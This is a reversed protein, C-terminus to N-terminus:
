AAAALTERPVLTTIPTVVDAAYDDDRDAEDYVGCKHAERVVRDATWADSCVIERYLRQAERFDRRFLATYYAREASEM